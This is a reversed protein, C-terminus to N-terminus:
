LQALRRLEDRKAVIAREIEGADVTRDFVIEFPGHRGMYFRVLTTERVGGDQLLQAGHSQKLSTVTLDEDMM